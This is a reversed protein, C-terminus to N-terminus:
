PVLYLPDFVRRHFSRQRPTRPGCHLTCVTHFTVSHCPIACTLGCLQVAWTAGIVEIFIKLFLSSADSADTLNFFERLTLWDTM